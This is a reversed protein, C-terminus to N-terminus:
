LFILGIIGFLVFLGGSIKNIINTNLKKSLLKGLFIAICNSVVMALTAGLILSIKSEPYNIGLGISALFTKDGLEGIAISLAIIFIYNIKLNSLSKLSNRKNYLFFRSEENHPLNNKGDNENRQFFLIYIGILIFSIFTIIQITHEFNSNEINGLSSGFLIAIGHSFLSGLTIGILITFTKLKASFSLILLQTKDGLESLFIFTFAILFPTIFDM